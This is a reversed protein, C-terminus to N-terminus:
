FVVPLVEEIILVTSFTSLSLTLCSDSIFTFFYFQHWRYILYVYTGFRFLILSAYNGTIGRWIDLSIAVSILVADHQHLSPWISWHFLVSFLSNHM